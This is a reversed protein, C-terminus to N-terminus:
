TIYKITSVIAEQYVQSFTENLSEAKEICRENALLLIDKAIKKVADRVTDASEQWDKDKRAQQYLEEFQEEGEYNGERQATERLANKLHEEVIIETM